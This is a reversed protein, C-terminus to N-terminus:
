NRTVIGTLTEWIGAALCRATQTDNKGVLKKMEQITSTM